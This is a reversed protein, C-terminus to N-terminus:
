VCNPDEKQPRYDMVIRAYTWMKEEKKAMAIEKHTMLFISNTCKQGTKNNGQAMGGFDKGFATQWIKAAELNNMLRKYSTITEGTAPYVMLSAYRAYNPIKDVVAPMMLHSPSFAMPPYLAEKMTMANLAQQSIIHSQAKSAISGQIPTFTVRRKAPMKSILRPSRQLTYNKTVNHKRSVYDPTITPRVDRTIQLIDGPMNNCTPQCHSRKTLILNRKAM